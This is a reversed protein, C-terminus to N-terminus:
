DRDYKFWRTSVDVGLYESHDSETLDGGGYFGM